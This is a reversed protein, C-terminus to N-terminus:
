YAACADDDKYATPVKKICEPGVPLWGGNYIPDPSDGEEYIESMDETFLVFHKPTGKIPKHCLCCPQMHGNDAQTPHEKFVKDHDIM